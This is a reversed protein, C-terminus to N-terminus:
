YVTNESLDYNKDTDNEIESFPEETMFNSKKFYFVDGIALHITHVICQQHFLEIKNGIKMMVNTCDLTCGVM